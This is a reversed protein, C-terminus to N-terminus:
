FSFIASLSASKVLESLDIGFDIQFREFVIGVGLAGHLEDDGARFFARAILDDDALSQIRHDPDLWIGGRLALVPRLKLFVYELGLRLENADDTVIHQEEPTEREISETLNSYLVRDWEFSVTTTGGQSRYAIGV